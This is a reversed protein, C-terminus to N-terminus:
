VEGNFNNMMLTLFAKFNIDEIRIQWSTPNTPEINVIGEICPQYAPSSFGNKLGGFQNNAGTQVKSKKSIPIEKYMTTFFPSLCFLVAKSIKLKWSISFM